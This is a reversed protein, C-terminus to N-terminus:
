DVTATRIAQDLVPRVADWRDAPASGYIVYMSGGAYWYRGLVHRLQGNRSFTFEWDAAQTSGLHSVPSLRLRRYDSQINPNSTEGSKLYEGVTRAPQPTAGFRLFVGADGPAAAQRNGPVPGPQEQWDAPLDLSLGGPADWRTTPPTGGPDQGAGGDLGDPDGGTAPGTGGTTGASGDRGSSPFRDLASAGFWAVLLVALVVLVTLTARGGGGSTAPAGGTAPTWIPADAVPRAAGVPIRGTTAGRTVPESPLHGHM